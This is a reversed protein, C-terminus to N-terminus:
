ETELMEDIRRMQRRNLLRFAGAAVAFSTLVSVFTVAMWRLRPDYGAAPPPALVEAARLANTLPYAVFYSLVLAATVLLALVTGTKPRPAVSASIGDAGDESHSDHQTRPSVPLTNQAHM